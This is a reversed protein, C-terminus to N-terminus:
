LSDITEITDKVLEKIPAIVGEAKPGTIDFIQQQAKDLLAKADQSQAYCESVIGTATTILNRLIAKEKIINAYYAVNAATPVTATLNTIYAAGGVSELIGKKNLAEVLTVLDVGKDANFLECIASFISKHSDKYFFSSDLIEIATGIAEEEILMSGLVATEAEINQPPVKELTIDKVDM